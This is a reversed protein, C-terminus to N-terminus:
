KSVQLWRGRTLRPASRGKPADVSERWRAKGRWVWAARAAARLGRSAASTESGERPMLNCTRVVAGPRCTPRPGRRAGPCAPRAARGEEQPRADHLRPWRGDDPRAGRWEGTRATRCRPIARAPAAPSCPRRASGGTQRIRLPHAPPPTGPPPGPGSAAATAPRRRPPPAPCPLTLLPPEARPTRKQAAQPWMSEGVQRRFGGRGVGCLGLRERVGNILRGEGGDHQLGPLYVIM